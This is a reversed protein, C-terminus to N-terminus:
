ICKFVCKIIRHWHKEINDLEKKDAESTKNPLLRAIM